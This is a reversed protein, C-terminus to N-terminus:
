ELFVYNFELDQNKGLLHNKIDKSSAKAKFVEADQASKLAKKIIGKLPIKVTQINIRDPLFEILKFSCPYVVPSPSNIFLCKNFLHVRNLYEGGSIVLKVQPNVNIIDIIKKAVPNNIINGESDLLSHYLTVVTLDDKNRSLVSTFWKLQERSLKPNNFLLVSDLGIFLYNKIKQAYWLTNPKYGYSSLSHILEDTNYAKIENIGLNVFVNSKLESIMDLFLMWLNENKKADAINNGGFIVIDPNLKQNIYKITEQFVTQSEYVLIGFKKELIHKEGQSQSPTNYLNLDTIYVIRLKDSVAFSSYLFLSLGFLCTLTVIILFCNPKIYM